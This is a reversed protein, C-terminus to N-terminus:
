SCAPFIEFREGYICELGLRKRREVAIKGLDKDKPPGPAKIISTLEGAALVMCQPSDAWGYLRLGPTKLRWIGGARPPDCRALGSSLPRGSVFDAFAANLQEALSAIGRQESGCNQRCWLEFETTWYLQRNPQDRPGLRVAVRRITAQALLNSLAPSM